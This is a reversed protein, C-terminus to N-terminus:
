KKAQSNNRIVRNYIPAKLTRPRSNFNGSLIRPDVWGMSMPPLDVRDVHWAHWEAETIHLLKLLSLMQAVADNTANHLASSKGLAGLSGFATEGKTQTRNFRIQFVSWIQMDWVKIQSSMGTLDVGGERLVDEEMGAAWFLVCVKCDVGDRIESETRNKRLLEGVLQKIDGMAEAATRFISKAFKCHYPRAPYPKAPGKKTGRHFGAPCTEETYRRYQHIITHYARILAGLDDVCSQNTTATQIRERPDYVAIGVESLKQYSSPQPEGKKTYMYLHDVGECDMTLFITDEVDKACRMMDAHNVVMPPPPTTSGPM